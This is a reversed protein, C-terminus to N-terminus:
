SGYYDIKDELIEFNTGFYHNFILRFNNVPSISDWLKSKDFDPLCYANFMSYRLEKIDDETFKVQVRSSFFNEHSGHDAQLVIIPRLGPKELISDIFELIQKDMFHLQEIYASDNDVYSYQLRGDKKFVFPMHPCLFHSYVFKPGDINLIKNLGDFQDLHQNYKIYNYIWNLVRRSFLQYIFIQTFEGIFFKKKYINNMYSSPGWTYSINIDKYGIKKLFFAVNNDKLMPYALGFNLNITTKKKFHYQLNLSSPISLVTFCYNSFSKQPLYFGRKKLNNIFWSDDYGYYKKLVNSSAHADLIIYYIDRRDSLALCDNLIEFSKEHQVRFRNNESIYSSVNTRIDFFSFVSSVSYFFILYLYVLSLFKILNNNIEKISLIFVLLSIFLFLYIFFYYKSSFYSLFNFNGDLVYIYRYINTFFYVGLYSTSLFIAAKKYNGIFKKLLLLFIFALCFLIIILSVFEFFIAEGVNISYLYIAPVLFALCVHVLSFFFLSM